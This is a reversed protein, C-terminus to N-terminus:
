EYYCAYLIFFGVWVKAHIPNCMEILDSYNIKSMANEATVFLLSNIMLSRPLDYSLSTQAEACVADTALM